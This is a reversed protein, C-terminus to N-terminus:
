NSESSLHRRSGFCSDSFGGLGIQSDSQNAGIAIAIANPDVTDVAARSGDRVMKKVIFQPHLFPNLLAGNLLEQAFAPVDSGRPVGQLLVRKEM